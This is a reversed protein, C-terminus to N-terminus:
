KAFNLVGLSTFLKNNVIFLHYKSNTLSTGSIIILSNHSERQIGSAKIANRRQVNAVQFVATCM